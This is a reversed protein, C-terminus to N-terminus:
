KRQANEAFFHNSIWQNYIIHVESDQAFTSKSHGRELNISSSKGVFIIEQTNSFM